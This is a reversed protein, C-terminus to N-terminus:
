SFSVEEGASNWNETSFAYTTLASSAGTVASACPANEVGGGGERPGDGQATASALWRRRQWGHDGGSPPCAPGTSCPRYRRSKSAPFAQILDYHDGPSRSM